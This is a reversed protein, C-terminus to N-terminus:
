EFDVTWMAAYLGSHTILSANSDHLPNLYRDLLGRFGKGITILFKKNRNSTCLRSSNSGNNDSSASSEFLNLNNSFHVLKSPDVPIILRIEEEFPRFVVIPRLTSGEVIILSGLTTGKFPRYSLFFNLLFLIRSVKFEFKGIYLEDDM